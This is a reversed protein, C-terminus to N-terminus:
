GRPVPWELARYLNAGWEPFHKIIEKAVMPEGSLGARKIAVRCGESCAGTLVRFEGLSIARDKGALTIEDKLVKLSPRKAEDKWTADLIASSLTDGHACYFSGALTVFYKTSGEDVYEEVAHGDRTTYVKPPAKLTISIGDRFFIM